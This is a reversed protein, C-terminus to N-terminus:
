GQRRGSRLVVAGLPLSLHVLTGRGSETEITMTGGFRHMRDRMGALGFHEGPAADVSNVDFGVGDDAITVGIHAQSAHVRVRLSSPRAHALANLIAERTAMLLEHQARALLRPTEGEVELQTQVQARSTLRELVDGLAEALPKQADNGRLNWIAERAEKICETMQERVYALTSRWRLRQGEAMNGSMQDHSIEVAELLSVAGICGQLLTDHIERAVRSREGAVAQFRLEMQQMRFRYGVRVLLALLLFCAALFWWTRYFATQQVIVVEADSAAEGGGWSAEVRFKYHGPPLKGYSSSAGPLISRWNDDFGELRRRLELGARSSLLIPTTVIEISHVSPALIIPGRSLETVGDVVIHEIVVPPPADQRVAPAPTIHIVGQSCAYWAGGLHDAAAAQLQDSYIETGTEAAVAFIEPKSRLSVEVIGNNGKASADQVSREVADRDVRFVATPQAFLFRNRADLLISIVASSENPLRPLTIHHLVGKRLLYLGTGTGVWLSGDRDTHLSWIRFRELERTADPKSYVGKSFLYLGTSTAAWIAGDPAFAMSRVTGVGLPLQGEGSYVTLKHQAWRALGTDTGIWISGDAAEVFGTVANSGLGPVFHEEVAGDVIRFAGDGVTGVWMAGKRERYICRIMSRSLQPLRVPLPMGHVLHTVNGGSLWVSGDRDLLVSSYDAGAAHPVRILDIGTASFRILGDQTGVWLDGNQTRALARVAKAEAESPSLVQQLKGDPKLLQLGAGITGIWLEGTQDAVLARVDSRIDARPQMHGDPSRRLLSGFSGIWLTGDAAQALARIPLKLPPLPVNAFRGHEYHVLRMGAVWFGTGGDSVFTTIWQAGVEAVFEFRGGQLRYLGRDTGAWIVGDAGQYLARVSLARFGQQAGYSTATGGSLHTVGGGVSGTWLTGDRAVLICYVGFEDLMPALGSSVNVFKFGDFRLLGHSTGLWLYGDPTQAVALITQEPLGDGISWRRHTLGEMGPVSTAFAQSVCIMLLLGCLWVFLTHRLLAAIRGTHNRL